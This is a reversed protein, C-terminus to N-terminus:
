SEGGAPDTPDFAATERLMQVAGRVGWERGRLREIRDVASEPAAPGDSVAAMCKACLRRDGVLYLAPAVFPCGDCMLPGFVEVPPALEAAEAPEAGGLVIRLAKHLGVRMQVDAGPAEQAMDALVLRIGGAIEERIERELQARTESLLHLSELEVACERDVDTDRWAARGRATAIANTARDIRTHATM